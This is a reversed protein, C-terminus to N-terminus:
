DVHIDIIVLPTRDSRFLVTIDLDKLDSDLPAATDYLFLVYYSHM